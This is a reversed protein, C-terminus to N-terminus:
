GDTAEVRRFDPRSKMVRLIARMIIRDFEKGQESLEGYPVMFEEGWESLRSVYGLQEYAELWAQHASHAMAEIFAEDDDVPIDLWVIETKGEHGHIEYVAHLGQPYCVLSRWKTNWCLSVSRDPWEVGFAVTGTGSIGTPDELRRLIFRRPRADDPDVDIEGRPWVLGHNAELLAKVIDDADQHCAWCHHPLGEKPARHDEPCIQEAIVDVPDVYNM